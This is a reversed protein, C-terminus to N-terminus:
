PSRRGSVRDGVAAEWRPWWWAPLLGAREVRNLMQRIDAYDRDVAPVFREIGAEDLLVRALPDNELAVLASRVADREAASLRRTSAVVPQITSPGLTAVIRLGRRLSPDRALWLDLVQTDIAAWDAGGAMVLRIADDHYGAEIWPGLFSPGAALEALRHLVVVFGSHSYPENYAWRAGELDEFRRYPADARVIVDSFYLPKGAYRDGRLVPAAVVDMGIAGADALLVYPVSCVFCVDDLDAGCRAYDDPVVLEATREIREAIRRAALAYVPLVAPALHTAVHLRSRQIHTDPDM